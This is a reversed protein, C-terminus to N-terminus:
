DKNLYSFSALVSCPGTQLKVLNLVFKDSAILDPYDVTKAACVHYLNVPVSMVFHHTRTLCMLQRNLHPLFIGGHFRKRSLVFLISKLAFWTGMLSM